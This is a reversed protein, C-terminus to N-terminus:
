DAIRIASDNQTKKRALILLLGRLLLTLIICSGGIFAWRAPTKHFIVWSWISALIPDFTSLGINVKTSELHKLPISFLGLAVTSQVGGLLAWFAGEHTPLSSGSLISAGGSILILMVGTLVFTELASTQEQISQKATIVLAMSWLFGTGLAFLMGLHEQFSLQDAFCIACSFLLAVSSVIDLFSVKEKAYLFSIAPVWLLSTYTLVTATGPNVLQVAKAFCLFQMNLLLAGFVSKWRFRPIKRALILLATTNFLCRLFITPWYEAGAQAALKLLPGTFSFAVASLCLALYPVLAKNM